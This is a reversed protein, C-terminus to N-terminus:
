ILVNELSFMWFLVIIYNFTWFPAEPNIKFLNFFVALFTCM